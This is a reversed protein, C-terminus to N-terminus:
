LESICCPVGDTDSKGCLPIGFSPDQSYPDVMEESSSFTFKANTNLAYCVSESYGAARDPIDIALSGNSTSLSKVSWGLPVQTLYDEEVLTNVDFGSDIKSGSSEFLVLAALIQSSENAYRAAAAEVQNNKYVEGGFFVGVGSLIM